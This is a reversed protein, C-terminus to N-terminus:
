TVTIKSTDVLGLFEMQNVLIHLYSVIADINTLMCALMTHRGAAKMYADLCTTIKTQVHFVLCHASCEVGTDWNYTILDFTLTQDIYSHLVAGPIQSLLREM